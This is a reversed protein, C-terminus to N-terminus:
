SPGAYHGPALAPILNRALTYLVLVVLLAHIGRRGLSLSPPRYGLAAACLISLFHFALYPLAALALLNFRALALLDGHVMLTVGRLVGCGPCHTQTVLKWPCHPYFSYQGLPYYLAICYLAALALSVIALTRAAQRREGGSIRAGKVIQM